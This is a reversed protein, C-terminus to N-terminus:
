LSSSYRIIGSHQEQLVATRRPNVDYLRFVDLRHARCVKAGEAEIM